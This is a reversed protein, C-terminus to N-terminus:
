AFFYGLLGIFTFWIIVYIMPHIEKKNEKM